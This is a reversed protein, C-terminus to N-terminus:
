GSTSLVAHHSDNTVVGCTTSLVTVRGATQYFPLVAQLPCCIAAAEHLRATRIRHLFRFAYTEIDQQIFDCMLFTASAFGLILDVLGKVGLPVAQQLM